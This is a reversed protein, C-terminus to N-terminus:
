TGIHALLMVSSADAPDALRARLRVALDRFPYNAAFGDCPKKRTALEDLEVLAEQFLRAVARPQTMIQKLNANAIQILARLLIRDHGNQLAAKWIAELIEHCEWFFNRDNLTLGYILAPDDAPVARDFRVPVLAKVRELTERDAEGGHDKSLGPVYTWRPLALDDRM